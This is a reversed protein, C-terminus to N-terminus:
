FVRKNMIIASVILETIKKEEKKVRFGKSNSKTIKQVTM